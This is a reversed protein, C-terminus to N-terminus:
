SSYGSGSIDVVYGFKVYTFMLVENDYMPCLRVQVPIHLCLCMLITM